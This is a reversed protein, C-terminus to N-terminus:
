ANPPQYNVLYGKSQLAKVGQKTKKLLRIITTWAELIPEWLNIKGNQQQLSLEIAYVLDNRDNGKKFSM